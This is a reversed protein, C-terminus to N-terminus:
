FRPVRGRPGSNTSLAEPWGFFYEYLGLGLALAVIALVFIVKGMSPPNRAWRSMMMLLRFQM